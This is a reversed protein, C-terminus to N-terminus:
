TVKLHYNIYKGFGLFNIISLVILALLVGVIVPGNSLLQQNRVEWYAPIGKRMVRYLTHNWPKKMNQKHLYADGIGKNALDFLSNM